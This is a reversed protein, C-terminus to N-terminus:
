HLSLALRACLLIFASANENQEASACGIKITPLFANSRTKRYPMLIQENRVSIVRVGYASSGDYAARHRITCRIANSRVGNATRDYVVRHVIAILCLFDLTLNNSAVVLLTYLHHHEGNM